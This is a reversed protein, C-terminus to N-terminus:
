ATHRTMRRLATYLLYPVVFVVAGGILGPVLYKSLPGQDAQALRWSVGVGIIAGMLLPWLLPARDFLGGVPRTILWCVFMLLAGGVCGAFLGVLTSTATEFGAYGLFAGFAGGVVTMVPLGRRLPAPLLAMGPIQARSPGSSSPASTWAPTGSSEVDLRRDQWRGVFHVLVVAAVVVAFHLWSYGDLPQGERLEKQGLIFTISLGVIVATFLLRLVHRGLLYGRKQELRWEVRQRFLMLASFALPLMVLFHAIWGVGPVLMDFVRSVIFGTVLAVLAAVPYFCAYLMFVVFSGIIILPVMVAGAAGVGGSDGSGAGRNRLAEYSADVADRQPEALREDHTHRNM